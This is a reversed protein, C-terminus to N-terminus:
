RSTYVIESEGDAVCSNAAQASSEVPDGQVTVEIFGSNRGAMTICTATPIGSVTIDFQSNTDGNPGLTIVGGLPHNVVTTGSGDDGVPFSSPIGGASIMTPTDLDGYGQGYFLDRANAQISMIGTMTANESQKNQANGYLTFAGVIILVGIIVVALVEILTVGKQKQLDKKNRLNIM